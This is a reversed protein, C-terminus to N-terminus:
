VDDGGRQQWWQYWYSGFFTFVGLAAGAVAAVGVVVAVIM